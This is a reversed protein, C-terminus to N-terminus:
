RVASLGFLAVWYPALNTLTVPLVLSPEATANFAGYITANESSKAIAGILVPPIMLLWCGFTASISLIQAKKTSKVALARQYYPQWPIGGLVILVLLDTYFIWNESDVSGTWDNVSLQTLDASSSSLMFPLCTSLGGFIFSIQIVDTFAVSHMGGVLTYFVAVIASLSVSFQIPISLIVSLTTGLASLVASTWCIDGICSPIYVFAGLTEGFAEQLSDIVTIHGKERLKPVFFLGNISM